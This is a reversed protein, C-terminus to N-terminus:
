FSRRPGHLWVRNRRTVKLKKALAEVKKRKKNGERLEQHWDLSFPGPGNYDKPRCDWFYQISDLIHFSRSNVIKDNMTESWQCSEIEEIFNTCWSAIKLKGESLAAQLNKILEGKRQSKNFPFIYSIRKSSATNIFWSEHPDSIRRVVNYGRLRNECEQFIEEPSFKGSIYEDKIVYWVGTAPNEACLVFGFKSQLAPDVAVVHRWANSYSPPDEVMKDREFQYVNLDAIAWDGYLVTRRYSDPYTKLSDLIRVKDEESYIPNDFMAFQYKKAYPEKSNDILKKIEPNPSKPTFTALFYGRKAQVRRHLEEILRVSGPLEDVWVWVATFAQLKERAERENHHSAFIITNGTKKHVVKQIVGGIRQVRLDDLDLFAAVKRWLVEEVQKSTRGVVLLQLPERGWHDPRKWFPHTETFIWACERAALQSKGSQNGSTVYRHQIRNIDALVELQKPTPRSELNVPDFCERIALEKYRLFAKAILANDNSM